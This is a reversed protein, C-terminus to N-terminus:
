EFGPPPNLLVRPDYEIILSYEDLSSNTYARSLEEGDYARFYNLDYRIADEFTCEVSYPCVVETNSISAWWITNRSMLSWQVYLQLEPLTTLNTSSANYLLTNSEGSYLTGEAFITSQIRRVNRGIYVDGGVGNSNKLLIIWKPIGTTNYIDEDIYLDWGIIILWQTDASNFAMRISQYTVTKPTSEDNIYFIRNLTQNTTTFTHNRQDLSLNRGVVWVNKRIRQLMSNFLNVDFKPGQEYITSFFTNGWASGIIKVRWIFASGTLSEDYSCDGTGFPVIWVGNNWWYWELRRSVPNFFLNANVWNLEITWANVSSATGIVSWCDLTPNWTWTYEIHTGSNFTGTGVTQIWFDWWIVDEDIYSANLIVEWANGTGDNRFEGDLLPIWASWSFYQIIAYVTVWFLIPGLTLLAFLYKKM